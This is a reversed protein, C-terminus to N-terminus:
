DLMCSLKTPKCETTNNDKPIYKEATAIIVLLLIDLQINM